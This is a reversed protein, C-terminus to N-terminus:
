AVAEQLKVPRNIRSALASGIGATVGAL